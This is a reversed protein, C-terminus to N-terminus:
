ATRRRRILTLSMALLCLTAPEPIHTMFVGSSGNTFSLSFVLDGNNNLMSARGDENGTSYAASGIGSVTRIDGPAVTFPMGKQALLFISGGADEAFLGANNGIAGSVGGLDSKLISYFAMQGLANLALGSQTSGFRVTDGAVISGAPAVDNTRMVKSFAGSSDMQFIGSDNVGTSIGTGTMGSNTFAITGAHNIQTDGFSSGWNVGVFENGNSHAIHPTAQGSQAVATMSGNTDTFLGAGSATGASNRLTSSYVMKGANNMGIATGPTNYYLGGVIGPAANGRQAVVELAGTRTSFVAQNNSTAGSTVVGTGQLTGYWAMAGNNNFSFQQGSGAIPGLQFGSGLPTADNQRATLNLVGPAGTWLGSANAGTGSIIIPPTGGTMSGIFAVQGNGNM